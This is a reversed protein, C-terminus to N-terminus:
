KKAKDKNMEYEPWGDEPRKKKVAKMMADRWDGEITLRDPEPGPPVKKGSYEHNRRGRSYEGESHVM